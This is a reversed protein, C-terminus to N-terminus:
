PALAEIAAAVADRARYLAAPDPLARTSYRGNECPMPTLERAQALAEEARTVDRGAARAARM